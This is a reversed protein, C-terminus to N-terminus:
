TKARRMQGREKDPAFSPRSLAAPNPGSKPDGRSEDPPSVAPVSSEAADRERELRWDREAEPSVIQRGGVEMTRPAKGCKKLKYFFSRSIDNRACLQSISSAQGSADVQGLIRLLQAVQRKLAAVELSLDPNTPPKTPM